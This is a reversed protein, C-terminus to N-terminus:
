AEEGEITHHLWLKITNLEALHNDFYQCKNYLECYAFEATRGTDEYEAEIPQCQSCYTKDFWENWPAGDASVNAYLWQALEDLSMAKIRDFMTPYEFGDCDVNKGDCWIPDLMPSIWHVKKACWGNDKNCHKCIKNM